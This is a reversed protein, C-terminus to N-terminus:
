NAKRGLESDIYRMVDEASAADLDFESAMAHDDRRGPIFALRKLMLELQNSIQNRSDGDGSVAPLEGEIRALEALLVQASRGRTDASPALERHIHAALAAPSPHDFVLTAPLRLGAASNLRNRLEVATLSDFGLDKFARGPEVQDASSHGLAAAVQARVLELVLEQQRSTSLGVLQAALGATGTAGGTAANPLTPLRVSGAVLAAFLPPVADGRKARRRLAGVDLRLPLVRPHAGLWTHDFLALFEDAPLALEGAGAPEVQQAPDADTGDALEWALSVAPLGRGRRVRVLGDLFANAAAHNGQGAGGVTGAASSFVVFAGLDLGATLEHLWWVEDTADDVVGAAHVVGWLPASEPVAALAAVAGAREGVDAGVVRVVAGLGELEGVLERVGVGELGRRGVLVL